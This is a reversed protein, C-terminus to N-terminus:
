VMLTLQLNMTTVSCGHSNVSSTMYNSLGISINIFFGAQPDGDCDKSIFSLYAFRAATNRTFVPVPYIMMIDELFLISFLLTHDTTIQTEQTLFFGWGKATIYKKM